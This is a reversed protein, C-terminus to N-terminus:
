LQPVSHRQTTPSLARGTFSRRQCGLCSHSSQAVAICNTRNLNMLSYLFCIALIGDGIVNVWWSMANVDLKWSYKVVVLYILDAIFALGLLVAGTKATSVKTDTLLWGAVFVAAAFVAMYRYDVQGRIMMSSKSFAFLFGGLLIFSPYSNTKIYNADMIWNTLITFIVAVIIAAITMTVAYEALDSTSTGPLAVAKYQRGGGIVPQQQENNSQM